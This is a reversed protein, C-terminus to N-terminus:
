AVAHFISHALKCGDHLNGFLYRQLLPLRADQSDIPAANRYARQMFAILVARGALHARRFRRISLLTLTKSLAVIAHRVLEESLDVNVLQSIVEFLSTDLYAKRKIFFRDNVHRM